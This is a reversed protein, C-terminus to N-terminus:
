EQERTWETTMGPRTGSMGGLFADDHRMIPIAPVLGAM